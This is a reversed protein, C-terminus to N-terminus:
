KEIDKKSIDLFPRVLEGKGLSRKFPISRAGKLGTGRFLRLFLTEVNDDLHHGFFIRDGEKLNEEFLMWRDDNIYMACHVANCLTCQMACQFVIQNYLCSNRM